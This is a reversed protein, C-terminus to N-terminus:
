PRYLGHELIYARVAEPTLYRVDGGRAVAARLDTAAIEIMPTRVVGARLKEFVEGSVQERLRGLIEEMELGGRWATLIRVKRVLEDFRHWTPLEGLSDSGILCAFETEPYRRQFQDVTNITYCPESRGLEWDSVEFRENGEVALRVMRLRHEGALIPKRRKHPPTGSPIFVVRDLGAQDMLSKAMILHGLHPPDFTGGFLGVISAL